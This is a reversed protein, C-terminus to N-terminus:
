RAPDARCSASRCAPRLRRGRATVPQARPEPTKSATLEKSVEVARHSGPRSARAVGGGPKVGRGGGGAQGAGSRGAHRGEQPPWPRGAVDLTLDAVRRCLPGSGAAGSSAEDQKAHLPDAPLPGAQWGPRHAGGCGRHAMRNVSTGQQVSRFVGCAVPQESRLRGHWSSEHSGSADVQIAGTPDKM